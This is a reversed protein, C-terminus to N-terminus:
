PEKSEQPDEAEVAERLAADAQMEQVIELGLQGGWVEGAESSEKLVAPMVAIAKQGVPSRYFKLLGKIDKHTFHKDYIPVMLTEFTDETVKARFREWFEDPLQPMAKKMGPIAQAVAQTGLRGAETLDLLERISREKAPEVAVAGTGLTLALVLVTLRRM